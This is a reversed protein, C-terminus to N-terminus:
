RLVEIAAITSADDELYFRFEYGSKRCTAIWGSEGENYLANLKLGFVRGAEAINMGKKIGLVSYGDRFGITVIKSNRISSVNPELFAFVIDDKGYNYYYAGIFPDVRSPNGYLKVIDKGYLNFVQKLVDADVIKPIKETGDYVYIVKLTLKAKGAYGEVAGEFDFTGEKDTTLLSPSWIVNVEMSSGDTMIAKVKEPLKYNEDKKVQANINEVSAIGIVNLYLMAEKNINEARGKFSYTGPKSIDVKDDNWKVPLEVEVGEMKAKVTKPFYFVKGAILTEKIEGVLFKAKIEELASKIMGDKTKEYNESLIAIADLPKNQLMYLNALEIYIEKKDKIALADKLVREATGYDKLGIYSKALAIRVEINKSDLKLVNEFALAAEQYKQELLYKNGLNMSTKIKSAKVVKATGVAAILLCLFISAIVILMKKNM